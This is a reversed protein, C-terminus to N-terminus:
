TRVIQHRMAVSILIHFIKVPIQYKPNGKGPFRHKEEIFTNFGHMYCLVIKLNKFCFCNEFLENEVLFVFKVNWLEILM